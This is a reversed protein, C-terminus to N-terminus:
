FLNLEDLFLVGHDALSIEGPTPIQGGGSLAVPSCIHHPSRFPRTRIFPCDEKLLGAVSYIKSISMCEEQSLEPLITPIRSAIMTKGAGPPGIMFLHHMSAAAIVAARKIAVQGCVEGFDVPYEKEVLEERPLAREADLVGNLFSMCESLSNLGLVRIGEVFSGEAANKEPIIATHCGAEKACCVMPLIANVPNIRGDLGLEGAFFVGEIRDPMVIGLLVLISVAIALDFHPAEKRLNAPALNITYRAPPMIVDSNKLATRVRDRGERAITGLNGTLDFAPLGQARDAEVEVIQAMIGSVTATKVKSVM